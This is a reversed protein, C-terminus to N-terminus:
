GRCIQHSIEEGRRQGRQGLDIITVLAIFDPRASVCKVFRSSSDNRNQLFASPNASFPKLRPSSSMPFECIAHWTRESQRSAVRERELGELVMQTSGNSGVDIWCGLEGARAKSSVSSRFDDELAVMPEYNIATVRFYVIATPLPLAIAAESSEIHHDVANEDDNDDDETSLSTDLWVPVGFVDGRRMMRAVPEESHISSTPKVAFFSKLGLLWSREYRKDVGETTALRCVSVSHATPINPTRAGFSTPQLM